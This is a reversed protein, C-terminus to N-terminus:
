NNESSYYKFKILFNVSQFLYSHLILQSINLENRECKYANFM